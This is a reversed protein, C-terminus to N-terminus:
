KATMTPTSYLRINFIDFCIVSYLDYVHYILSTVTQAHCILSTVTQAHCFVAVAGNLLVKNINYTTM